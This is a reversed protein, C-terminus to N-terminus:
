ARPYLLLLDSDYSALFLYKPTTQAGYLMENSISSDHIISNNDTKPSPAVRHSIFIKTSGSARAVRWRREDAQFMLM